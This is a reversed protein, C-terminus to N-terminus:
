APDALRRALCRVNKEEKHIRTERDERPVAIRMPAGESLFNEVGSLEAILFRRGRFEL